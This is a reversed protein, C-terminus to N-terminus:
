LIIATGAAPPASMPTLALSGGKTEPALAWNGSPTIFLGFTADAGQTLIIRNEPGAGVVSGVWLQGGLGSPDSRIFEVQYNVGDLEPLIVRDGERMSFVGAEVSEFTLAPPSQGSVPRLLNDAWLPGAAIFFAAYFATLIRYLM